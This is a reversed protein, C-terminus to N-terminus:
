PAVEHRRESWDRILRAGSGTQESEEWRERTIEEGGTRLAGALSGGIWSLLAPAFSTSSSLTSPSTTSVVSNLIRLHPILSVLPSFHPATRLHHLRISLRKQALSQLKVRSIALPPSDPPISLSSKSLSYLLESRLRLIFGPLM